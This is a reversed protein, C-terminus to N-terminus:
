KAGRKTRVNVTKEYQSGQRRIVIISDSYDKSNDERSSKWSRVIMMFRIHLHLNEWSHFSSTKISSNKPFSSGHYRGENIPTVHCAGPSYANKGVDNLFASVRWKLVVVLISLVLHRPPSLIFPNENRSDNKSGTVSRSGRINVQESHTFVFPNCFVILPLHFSSALRCEKPGLLIESRHRDQCSTMLRLFSFPGYSHIEVRAFSVLPGNWKSASEECKNQDWRQKMILIHFLPWGIRPLWWWKPLLFFPTSSKPSISSFSRQRTREHRDDDLDRRKTKARPISEKRTSWWWSDMWCLNSTQWGYFLTSAPSSIGDM